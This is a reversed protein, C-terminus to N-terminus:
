TRETVSQQKLTASHTVAYGSTVEETHITNDTTTHHFLTNLTGGQRPAGHTSPLEYQTVANRNWTADAKFPWGGGITLSSAENEFCRLLGHVYVFNHYHTRFPDSVLFPLAPSLWCSIVERRQIWDNVHGAFLYILFGLQLVFQSIIIYFIYM